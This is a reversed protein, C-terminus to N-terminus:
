KPSLKRKKRVRPKKVTTKTIELTYGLSQLISIVTQLEPNANKSFLKYLTARSIKAKKAVAKINGHVRIVDELATLFVTLNGDKLSETLFGAAFNPDELFEDLIDDFKPYKIKM